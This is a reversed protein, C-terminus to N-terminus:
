EIKRFLFLLTSVVFNAFLQYALFSVSLALVWQIFGFSDIGNSYPELLAKFGTILYFLVPIVFNWKSSKFFLVYPVFLFGNIKYTLHVLSFYCVVYLLLWWSWGISMVIPSLWWIILWLCWSAVYGYIAAGVFSFFSKM